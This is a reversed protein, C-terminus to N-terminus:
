RSAGPALELVDILADPELRYCGPGGFFCARRILPVQLDGGRVEVAGRRIAFDRAGFHGHLEYVDYTHFPDQQHGLYGQSWVELGPIPANARLVATLRDAVAHRTIGRARLTAADRVVIDGIRDDDRVFGAGSLAGPLLRAHLEDVTGGVYAALAGGIDDGTRGSLDDPLIAPLPAGDVLARLVDRMEPTLQDAATPARRVWLAATHFSNHETTPALLRDRQAYEFLELGLAADFAAYTRQWRMPDLAELFNSLADNGLSGPTAALERIRRLVEGEFEGPRAAVFGAIAIDGAIATGGDVIEWVNRCTGAEVIETDESCTMAILVDWADRLSRLPALKWTVGRAELVADAAPTLEVGREHLLRFWRRAYRAAHPSAAPDSLVAGLVEVVTSPDSGREGSACLGFYFRHNWALRTSRSIGVLIDFLVDFSRGDTRKVLWRGLAEIAAAQDRAAAHGLAIADERPAALLADLAAADLTPSDPM